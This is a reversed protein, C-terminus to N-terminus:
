NVHINGSKDNISVTAVHKARDKIIVVWQDGIKKPSSTNYGYSKYDRKLLSKVLNKANSKTISKQTTVASAAHNKNIDHAFATASFATTLTIVTALSIAKLTIIKTM